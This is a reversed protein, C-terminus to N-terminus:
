KLLLYAFSNSSLLKHVTNAINQVAKIFSHIRMSVQSATILFVLVITELDETQASEM